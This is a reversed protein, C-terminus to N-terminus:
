GTGVAWFLEALRGEALGASTAAGGARTALRDRLGPDDTGQSRHCSLAALKGEFAETVDVALNAAPAAMLWLARVTHPELGEELLEPHAFPNRSDPYVADVAAEGAALHDPHSAFIVNWNREPSPAIVLDPRFERVVRSLDRRLELTASVRGDPYGLFTVESVGVAAAAALQEGRRIEAMQGRSMARDDGGAEGDTIICYRVAAGARRMTAVTAACGFDVDDPHACIALVRDFSEEESSWLRPSVSSPFTM